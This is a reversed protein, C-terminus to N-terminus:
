GVVWAHRGLQLADSFPQDVDQVLHWSDHGVQLASSLSTALVGSKDAPHGVVRTSVNSRQLQVLCSPPTIFCGV